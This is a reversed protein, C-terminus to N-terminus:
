IMLGGSSLSSAMLPQLLLASRMLAAICAWGRQKGFTWEPLALEMASPQQQFPQYLSVGALVLSANAATAGLTRQM